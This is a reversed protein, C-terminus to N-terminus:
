SRYFRKLVNEGKLSFLGLAFVAMALILIMWIEGLFEGVTATFLVPFVAALTILFGLIGFVRGRLELPTKEQLLTQAPITFFTFALGALFGLSMQGLIKFFSNLYPVILVLSFLVFSSLFLGTHILYRKRMKKLLKVVLTMGIIAGFAGPLIFNESVSILPMKLIKVVLAPALVFVMVIIIQSFALLLLPFLVTPSNKLFQYGEQLKLSFEQFRSADIKGKPKVFTIEPLLWVTISALILFASGMLFPIQSGLLRVLPGALGFGFVLSFYIAFLFLSNAASLLKKPVVSPLTASEAPLYFQNLISYLFLVSYIPWISTKAFLYLLVILSQFLNTLILIRRTGWLDILVGSFPGLFIAPLAWFFWFLSIAVTSQTQEFIILILIFNVLNITIKSLLQSGWIKLFNKNRLTEWFPSAIKKM